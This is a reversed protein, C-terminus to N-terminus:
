VGFARLISESEIDIGLRVGPEKLFGLFSDDLYSRCPHRSAFKFIVIGPYLIFTKTTFDRKIHIFGNVDIHKTEFIKVEPGLFISLGTIVKNNLEKLNFKDEITIKTNGPYKNLNLELKLKPNYIIQDKVLFWIPLKFNDIDRFDIM